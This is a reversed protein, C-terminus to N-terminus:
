YVFLSMTDKFPAVQKRMDTHWCAHIALCLRDVHIVNFDGKSQV